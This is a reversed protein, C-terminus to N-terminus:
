PIRELLIPLTCIIGLAVLVVVALLYFLTYDPRKLSVPNPVRRQSREVPTQPADYPSPEM